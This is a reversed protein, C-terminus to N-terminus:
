CPLYKKSLSEKKLSKYDYNPINTKKKKTFYKEM